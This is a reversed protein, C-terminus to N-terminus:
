EIIRWKIKKAEILIFDNYELHENNYPNFDEWETWYYFEKNKAIKAFQIDATWNDKGEIPFFCNLRRTEEFMLEISFPNNDLREFKMILINSNKEYGIREDDVYNGSDFAFSVMYSDEFNGYCKHLEEICKNSKVEIWNM